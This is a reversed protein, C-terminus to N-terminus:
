FWKKWIAKIGDWIKKMSSVLKAGASIRMSKRANERIANKISTKVAVNKTIVKASYKYSDRRIEKAIVKNALKWSKVMTKGNAGAGGAVGSAAGILANAGIGQVSIKEGHSFQGAVYGGVTTATNIMIQKGRDFGTAAFLGSIAGTGAAIAVNKMDLEKISRTEIIQSTVEVAVSVGAGIAAGILLHVWVDGETDKRAIPNNDCYSYLNCDDINEQIDLSGMEDSCIFRRLGPDYYRNKLYYMGTENDYYYGRYRFPNQIGVTDKLSGTISLLKGWSDYVYNVVTKGSKDVLAVIDNQINRVYYYYKGDIVTAVLNAGSDYIYWTTKGNCIESALLDGAMHYNTTVGDVVKKVRAGTHDYFYQAKRGNDVCALKRGMTWTYVTDGRTLMNGVADYTMATGDWNLLQDKWTSSYTGTEEHVPTEPLTGETYAYEKVSKLNGGQDYAYVITKDQSQSNERILQNREDYQFTDKLIKETSGKHPVRQIETINGNRDYKYSYSCEQVDMESPLAYEKNKEADPYKYTMSMSTDGNEASFSQKTVRGLNDYDTSRTFKGAVRVEKERGDKDYTYGTTLKARGDTHFMRIMQNNTESYLPKNYWNISNSNWAHLVKHVEVTREKNDEALSVLVLRASVVMDGTKMEPLEFRIFSRQVEDGGMTKLIISKQFNDEEYLSDVHADYIESAKKSTTTVPDIVVPYIREQAKLWMQNPLFTIRCINEELNESKLRIAETKEAKVSAAAGEMGWRLACTDMTLSATAAPEASDMLQIALKGKNNCFKRNGTGGISRGFAVEELTDDMEKWSGDEDEYHVPEMYIEVTRSHDQNEFVKRNATRKEKLESRTIKEKTM